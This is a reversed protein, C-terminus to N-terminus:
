AYQYEEKLYKKNRKWYDQVITFEIDDMDSEIMNGDCSIVAAHYPPNVNAVSVNGDEKMTFAYGCVIMDATIALQEIEKERIM